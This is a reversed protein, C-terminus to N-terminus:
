VSQSVKIYSVSQCSLKHRRVEEYVTEYQTECKQEYKTECKTDYETEYEAPVPFVYNVENKNGSLFTHSHSLSAAFFNNKKHGPWVM